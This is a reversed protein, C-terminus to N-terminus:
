RASENGNKAALVAPAANGAKSTLARPPPGYRGLFFDRIALLRAKPSSLSTWASRVFVLRVTNMLMLVARILSKWMGGYMRAMLLSSRASLYGVVPSSTWTGPNIVIAGWVMGVGWGMKRARLGIEAEDGYAFYREDFLGIKAICQKRFIQVTGHPADVPTVEGSALPTAPSFTIGRIPAFRAIEPTEYQPCAVGLAKEREMARILIALCDPRPISDHASVVCFESGQETLWEKLLVNLAGGWGKNESLRILDVGPPLGAVLEEVCETRSCNDVVRISIPLGQDQFLGITSLCELPRNWHVIFIPLMGEIPPVM